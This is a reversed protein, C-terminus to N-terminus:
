ELEVWFYYPTTTSDGRHGDEAVILEFDYNSGNFGDKNNELLATYVINASNDALLLEYWKTAENQGTSNHLNTSKCSDTTINISGVFFSPHSQSSFTENIGDKATTIFNLLSEENSIETTNSCNITTWTISSARSAYIEGSPSLLTWDYLTRNNSNGLVITGIVNGYYGQWGQTISTGNINLETVNGAIANLQYGGTTSYRSSGGSTMNLPGNPEGCVAIASLLFLAVAIAMIGIRNNVLIKNKM